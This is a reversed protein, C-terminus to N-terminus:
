KEIMDFKANGWTEVGDESSELDSSFSSTYFEKTMKGHLDLYTATYFTQSLADDLAALQKRTMNMLQYTLKRKTGLKDRRMVTDKTRVSKESDVDNRSWSCGKRSINHSYDVGNIILIEM